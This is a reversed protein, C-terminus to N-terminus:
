AIATVPMNVATGQLPKGYPHGFLLSDPQCRIRADSENFLVAFYAERRSLGTSGPSEIANVLSVQRQVAVVIVVSGPGTYFGVNDIGAYAGGVSLERPPHNGTEGCNTVAISGVVTVTMARMHCACHTSRSVACCFIHRQYRNTHEIATARARIGTDNRADIPHGRVM